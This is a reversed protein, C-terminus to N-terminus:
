KYLMARKMLKAKSLIKMAYRNNDTKNIALKVISTTGEGTHFALLIIIVSLRLVFAARPRRRRRKGEGQKRGKQVKKEDHCMKGTTSAHMSYNGITKDM